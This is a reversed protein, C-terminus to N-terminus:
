RTSAFGLFLVYVEPGFKIEPQFSHHASSSSMSMFWDRVPLHHVQRVRPENIVLEGEVRSHELIPHYLSFLM